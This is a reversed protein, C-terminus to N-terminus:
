WGVEGDDMHPYSEVLNELAQWEAHSGVIASLMEELRAEIEGAAKVMEGATKHVEVLGLKADVIMDPTKPNRMRQHVISQRHAETVNELDTGTFKVARTRVKDNHIKSMNDTKLSSVQWMAQLDDMHEEFNIKLTADFIDRANSRESYWTSQPKLANGLEPDKAIRDHLALKQATQFIVLEELAPLAKQRIQHRAFKIKQVIHDCNQQLGREYWGNFDREYRKGREIDGEAWAQPILEKYREIWKDHQPLADTINKRELVLIHLMRRKLEDDIDPIAYGLHAVILILLIMPDQTKFDVTEPRYSHIALKLKRCTDEHANASKRTLLPQNLFEIRDWMADMLTQRAESDDTTDEAVHENWARLVNMMEAYTEKRPRKSYRSAEEGDEVLRLPALLDEFKSSRAGHGRRIRSLVSVDPGASPPNRADGSHEFDPTWDIKAGEKECLGDLWAITDEFSADSGLHGDDEDDETDSCENDSSAVSWEEASAISNCQFPLVLDDEEDAQWLVDTILFRTIPGPNVRPRSTTRM